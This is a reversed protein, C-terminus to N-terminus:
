DGGEHSDPPIPIDEDDEGSQSPTTRLAPTDERITPTLNAVDSRKTAM